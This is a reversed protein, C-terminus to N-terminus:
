AATGGPGFEGGPAGVMGKISSSGTIGGDPHSGHTSSMM